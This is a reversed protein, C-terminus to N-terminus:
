LSLAPFFAFYPRFCPIENLITSLLAHNQVCFVLTSPCTPVTNPAV